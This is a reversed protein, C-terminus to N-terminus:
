LTGEKLKMYDIMRKVTTPEYRYRRRDRWPRPRGSLRGM